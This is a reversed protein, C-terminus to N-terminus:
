GTGKGPSSVPSSASDPRTRARARAPARTCLNVHQAVIAIQM